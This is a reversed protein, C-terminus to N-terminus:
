QTPEMKKLEEKIETPLNNIAREMDTARLGLFFLNRVLPVYAPWLHPGLSYLGAKDCVDSMKCFEDMNADPDNEIATRLEVELPFKNTLHYFQGIYAPKLQKM